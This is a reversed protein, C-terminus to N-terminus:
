PRCDVSASFGGDKPIRGADSSTVVSFSAVFSAVSCIILFAISVIEDDM